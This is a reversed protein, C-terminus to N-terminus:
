CTEVLLCFVLELCSNFSLQLFQLSFICRFFTALRCIFSNLLLLPLLLSIGCHCLHRVSVGLIRAKVLPQLNAVGGPLSPKHASVLKNGGASDQHCLLGKSPSKLHLPHSGVTLVTEALHM